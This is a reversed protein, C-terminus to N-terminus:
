TTGSYVTYSFSSPAASSSPTSSLCATDNYKYASLSSLSCPSGVDCIVSTAITTPPLIGCAVATVSFTVSSDKAFSYGNVLTEVKIVYTSITVVDSYGPTFSYSFINGPLM